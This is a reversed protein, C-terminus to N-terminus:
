TVDPDVDVSAEILIHQPIVNCTNAPVHSSTSQLLDMISKEVM